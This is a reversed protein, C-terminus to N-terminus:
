LIFNEASVPCLYLLEIEFDAVGDGDIDGQVLKYDNAVGENDFTLVHVQGPTGTFESDGIFTFAQNGNIYPNADIRGLFIIDGLFGDITDHGPGVPSDSAAYLDFRDTGADAGGFADWNGGYQSVMYDAGAGGIFITSAGYASYLGDDGGRGDLVGGQSRMDLANGEDTGTVWRGYGGHEITVSEIGAYDNLNVSTSAVIEDFGETDIITEGADHGLYYTDNGAGGIFLDQGTGGYLYDPGNGGDLTDDGPGGILRDTGNGAIISDNGDGGRIDDWGGGGLLTDDAATGFVVLGM